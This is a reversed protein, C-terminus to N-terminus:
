EWIWYQLDIVEGGVKFDQATIFVAQLQEGTLPAAMQLQQVVSSSSSSSSSTASIPIGGATKQSGERQGDIEMSEPSSGDVGASASLETIM